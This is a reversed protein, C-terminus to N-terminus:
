HMDLPISYKRTSISQSCQVERSISDAYRNATKESRIEIVIYNSIYM